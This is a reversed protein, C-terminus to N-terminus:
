ISVFSTESLNVFLVERNDGVHLTKEKPNNESVIKWVMKLFKWENAISVGLCSKIRSEEIKVLLLWIFADCRRETNINVDRLKFESCYMSMMSEWSEIKGECLYMITLLQERSKQLSSNEYRKPSFFYMLM